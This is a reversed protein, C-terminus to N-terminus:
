LGVREAVISDRCDGGYALRWQADLQLPRRDRNISHGKWSLVRAESQEPIRRLWSRVDEGRFRWMRGPEDPDRCLYYGDAQELTALLETPTM